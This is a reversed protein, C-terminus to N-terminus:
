IVKRVSWFFFRDLEEKQKAKSVQAWGCQFHACTHTYMCTCMCVWVPVVCVCVCMFLYSSCVHACVFVGGDDCHVWGLEPSSCRQPIVASQQAISCALIIYNQWLQMHVDKETTVKKSGSRLISSARNENLQTSVPPCFAHLWTEPWKLCPLCFLHWWVWSSFRLFFIWILYFYGLFIDSFTFPNGLLICNHCATFFLYNVNKM